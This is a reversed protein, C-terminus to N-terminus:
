GNPKEILPIIIFRLFTEGNVRPINSVATPTPLM